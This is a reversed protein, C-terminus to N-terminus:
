RLYAKSFAKFQPHDSGALWEFGLMEFTVIQVNHQEMRAIARESEQPNRASIADAVVAVEFGKQKLSLATQIICAQSEMGCLVITKRETAAMKQMLEVSETGSFKQKGVINTAGIKEVLIAESHGLGEPYQESGLVPVDFMKALDVLDACKKVLVDSQHIGGLLRTQVDVVLLLSDQARILM